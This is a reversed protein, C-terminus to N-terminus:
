LIMTGRLAIEPCYVNTRGNKHFDLVISRQSCLTTIMVVLMLIYIPYSCSSHFMSALVFCRFFKVIQLVLTQCKFRHSAVVQLCVPTNYFCLFTYLQILSKKKIYGKSLIHVAFTTYVMVLLSTIIYANYLRIM